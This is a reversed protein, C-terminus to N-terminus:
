DDVREVGAVVSIGSSEDVRANADTLHRSVLDLSTTALSPVLWRAVVVTALVGVGGIVLAGSAGVLSGLLGGRFDGLQPGGSAFTSHAAAIRGRLADPTVLNRVIHRLAMSIADAAGALVLCLLALPLTRSLGLGAIALGFVGVAALVGLGPRRVAPLASIALSGIVAGIPEGSLLLGYAGANGGLVTAAYVPLLATIAGFFTAFFDVSMVSLLVPSRRLFRLGAGAAGLASGATRTVVSRTVIRSLLGVVVIFGATDVAFAAPVGWVAIVAGAVAPGAISASQSALISVSLASSMEERPVLAPIFASRAPQAVTDLLGASATVVYIAPLSAHQDISLGLLTASTLLLLSQTVLLTGHREFRDAIVGGFLGFLLIPVFRILGVLGLYFPDHTLQFIQWSVATFQFKAGLSEVAMSVFLLRYDHHRLVVFAPRRDNM